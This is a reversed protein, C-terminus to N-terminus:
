IAADIFGSNNHRNCELALQTVAAHRARYVKMNLRQKKTVRTADDHTMHLVKIWDPGSTDVNYGTTESSVATWLYTDCYGEYHRFRDYPQMFMWGYMREVESRLIVGALGERRIYAHLHEPEAEQYLIKTNTEVRQAQDINEVTPVLDGEILFLVEGDTRLFERFLPVLLAIAFFGRDDPKHFVSVRNTPQIIQKESADIVIAGCPLTNIASWTKEHIPFDRQVIGIIVKKLSSTM